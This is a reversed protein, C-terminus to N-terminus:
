LLKIIIKVAHKYSWVRYHSTASRYGISHCAVICLQATARNGPLEMFPEMFRHLCPMTGTGALARFCFGNAGTRLCRNGLTATSCRDLRPYLKWRLMEDFSKDGSQLEAEDKARGRSTDCKTETAAMQLGRHYTTPANMTKM